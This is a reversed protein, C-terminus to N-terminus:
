AAAYEGVFVADQSQTTRMFEGGAFSGFVGAALVGNKKLIRIIEPLYPIRGKAIKIM